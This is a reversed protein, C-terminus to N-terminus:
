DYEHADANFVEAEDILDQQQQLHELDTEKEIPDNLDDNDFVVDDMM